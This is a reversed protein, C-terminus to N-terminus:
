ISGAKFTHFEQNDKEYQEYETIKSLFEEKTPYNESHWVIDEYNSGSASWEVGPFSHILMKEIM